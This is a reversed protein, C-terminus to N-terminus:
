VGSRRRSLYHSPIHEVLWMGDGSRYFGWGDRPTARAKVHLVVPWGCGRGVVTATAEDPSLHAHHRRM